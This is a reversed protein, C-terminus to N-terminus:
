SETVKIQDLLEQVHHAVSDLNVGVPLSGCFDSETGAIELGLSHLLELGSVMRDAVKNSLKFLRFRPNWPEKRANEVYKLLTSLAARTVDAGTPRSVLQELRAKTVDITSDATSASPAILRSTLEVLINSAHGSAIRIATAAAVNPSMGHQSVLETFKSKVRVAMEEKSVVDPSSLSQYLYTPESEPSESAKHSDDVCSLELLSALEKTETPLRDMWSHFLSEIGEDGRNCAQLIENRSANASVVVQGSMADLVVFSPIGRIGYENSLIQKYGNFSPSSLPIAQWPMSSFYSTFSAVDRDSSVFVVELGHTPFSDKLQQYMEALM